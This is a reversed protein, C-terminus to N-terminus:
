HAVLNVMFLILVVLPYSLLSSRVCALSLLFTLLLLLAFLCMSCLLCSIKIGLNPNVIFGVDENLLECLAPDREVREVILHDCHYFRSSSVIVFIPLVFKGLSVV